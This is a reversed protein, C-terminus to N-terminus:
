EPLCPKGEYQHRQTVYRAGNFRLVPFCFGPGGIEIDPWGDEGKTSLIRAIGANAAMKKWSGDAQKSVLTFAEGTMGYCFSSSETVIAEPRGDGNLDRAESISGGSYGGTSDDCDKSRWQKGNQTFGAATLAATQDASPLSAGRAPIPAAVLAALALFMVLNMVATRGYLNLHDQPAVTFAAGARDLRRAGRGDGMEEREDVNRVRSTTRCGNKGTRAPARTIQMAAAMARPKGSSVDRDICAFRRGTRVEIPDGGGSGGIGRSRM